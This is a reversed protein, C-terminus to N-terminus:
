QVLFETVYVARILRGPVIQDFRKALATKARELGESGRLEDLTRDAFYTIVADRIQSVRTRVTDLDPQSAVEVHLAARVYHDLGDGGRLQIILKALTLTPGPEPRHGGSPAEGHRSPTALEARAPSSAVPERMVAFLVTGLMAVNVALMLAVLKDGSRSTGTAVVPAAGEIQAM